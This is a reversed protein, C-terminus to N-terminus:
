SRFSARSSKFGTTDVNAMNHALTDMNQQYAIMGSVGNYFAINM